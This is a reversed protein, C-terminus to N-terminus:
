RRTRGFTSAPGNSCPQARPSISATVTMLLSLRCLKYSRIPLSPWCHSFFVASNTGCARMASLARESPRARMWTLAGPSSPSSACSSVQAAPNDAGHCVFQGIRVGGQRRCGHLVCRLTNLRRPTTEINCHRNRYQRQQQHTQNEPEAPLLGVFQSAFKRAPKGLGILALLLRQQDRLFRTGIQTVCACFDCQEFLLEGLRLRLLEGQLRHILVEGFDAIFGINGLDFLDDQDCALLKLKGAIHARDIDLADMVDVVQRAFWRANYPAAIPKCSSGFGPLDLAHVTYSHSLAAATDFFSSKAGGLGHVLLVDPGSGMTLTSVCSGGSTKVDHIRMLPPRGDPLRFLGEFGVALDLNGRAYLTRERFADLGSLEGQRLRLWTDSDTGITVDPKRNTVGKRVRAGHTTCRVEWTHGVDGLRVHYTADFGPEAGLYREPLTRFAEEVLGLGGHSLHHSGPM